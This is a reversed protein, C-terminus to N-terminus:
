LSALYARWGGFHSIDRAKALAHAECLFGHVVRGDALELSGLCLPAPVLALFSGAQALPMDWLEVEIASGGEACRQLGPKPPRTDPLAYLRYKPATRTAERLTAGRELLQGNLPLGSLHAGVVALTLTPATV